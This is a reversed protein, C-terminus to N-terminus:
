RRLERVMEGIVNTCIGDVGMAALRRADDEEDVTWAIVRGSAKHIRDVLDDDIMGWEQWYDRARAARLAAVPEILYSASLIGTPVRTRAHAEPREDARHATRLAVRHDFGHVACSTESAEICQLTADLAEPAKVEVYVVARDGVLALVEALTPIPVGPALPYGALERAPVERICVAHGAGPTGGRRVVPDHHVVAVGDATLHVDLEIGDAGEDLAYRFGPLSNEPHVRPTGRHAILEPRDM